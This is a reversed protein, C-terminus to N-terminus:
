WRQKIDIVVQAGHECKIGELFSIEYVEKRHMVEITCENRPDLLKERLQRLFIDIDESRKVYARKM